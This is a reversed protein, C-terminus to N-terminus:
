ETVGLLTNLAYDTWVLEVKESKPLPDYTYEGNRYAYDSIDGEPLADVLPMNDAAYKEYTASLIRGDKSLYLAYRM